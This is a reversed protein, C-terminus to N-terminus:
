GSYTGARPLEAVSDARAGVKGRREGRDLLRSPGPRHHHPRHRPRLRLEAEDTELDALFRWEKQTSGRHKDRAQRPLIITKLM